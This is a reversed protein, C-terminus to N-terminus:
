RSASSPGQFAANGAKRMAEMAEAPTYLRITKPTYAFHTLYQPM